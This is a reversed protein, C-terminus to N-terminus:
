NYAGSTSAHPLMISWAKKPLLKSKNIELAAIKIKEHTGLALKYAEELSLNSYRDKSDAFSPLPLLCLISLSVLLIFPSLITKGRKMM